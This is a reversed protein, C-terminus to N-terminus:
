TPLASYVQRFLFVQQSYNKNATDTDVDLGEHLIKTVNGEGCNYASTIARDFVDQSLNLDALHTKLFQSKGELVEVAKVASKQPNRWDGSNIFDPFSRIDIQWFSYGHYIGHTFDGKMLTALDNITTHGSNVYKTILGGTERCAIAALWDETFYTGTVAVVIQPKINQKIWLLVDRNSHIINPAPHLLASAFNFTIPGVEGDDVIGHKKQFNRTASDTNSGFIGDDIVTTYGQSILYQQWIKVDMGTSDIKLIIM